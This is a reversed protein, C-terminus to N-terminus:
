NFLCLFSVICIMGGTKKVPAAEETMRVEMMKLSSENVLSRAFHNHVVAEDTGKYYKKVKRNEAFVEVVTEEATEQETNAPLESICSSILNLYNVDDSLMVKDILEADTISEVDLEMTGGPIVNM